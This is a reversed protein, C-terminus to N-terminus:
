AEVGKLTEALEVEREAECPECLVGLVPRHTFMMTARRCRSCRVADVPELVRCHVVGHRVEGVEIMKKM